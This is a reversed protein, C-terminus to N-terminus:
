EAVAKGGGNTPATAPKKETLRERYRTYFRIQRSDPAFPKGAIFVGKINSTHELPDGDLIVLNASKQPTLSGVEKEIGLIEAASLTVARLGQDQPLGYTVAMAAELPANRSNAADDSRICFKVGAEFLRGPNAYPADSPDSNSLPNRMVPGVIVPTSRKKLEAALKWADTGGTIIIDLKEKEAFLLSEAIAKRSHAEMFVPKKRNLYPRLSEFRPDTIPGPRNQKEAESQLRDYVRAEELFKHLEDQQNKAM